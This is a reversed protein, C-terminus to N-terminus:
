IMVCLESMNCLKGPDGAPLCPCQSIVEIRESASDWWIDLTITLLLIGFTTDIWATECSQTFALGHTFLISSASHGLCLRVSIIVSNAM